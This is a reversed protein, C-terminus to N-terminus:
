KTFRIFVCGKAQGDFFEPEVFERYEGSSDTGSVETITLDPFMDVVQRFSHIRHANFCVRPTGIPVAFYLVGGPALVRALERCATKTGQPDLPDGYRGLGIHEAVSLCSLSTVQDDEFPLSLLTGKRCELNPLNAELPRLDIYTVKTFASLTGIIPRQSGIDVHHEAGSEYIRRAVWAGMFFYADAGQTASAEGLQPILNQMRVLRADDLRRYRRLDSFYSVYLPVARIAKIPDFVPCVLYYIMKGVQRLPSDM